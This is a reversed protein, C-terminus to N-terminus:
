ATQLDPQSSTLEVEGSQVLVRVWFEAVGDTSFCESQGDANQSAVLSTGIGSELSHGCGCLLTKAGGWSM